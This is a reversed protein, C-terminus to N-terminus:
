RLRGILLFGPAINRAKEYTRWWASGALWKRWFNESRRSRIRRIRMKLDLAAVKGSTFAHFVGDAEESAPPTKMDRSARGRRDFRQALGPAFSGLAAEPVQERVLHLSAGM